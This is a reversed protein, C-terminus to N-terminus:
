GSQRLPSPKQEELERTEWEIRVEEFFGGLEDGGSLEMTCMANDPAGAFRRCAELVQDEDLTMVHSFVSKRTVTPM